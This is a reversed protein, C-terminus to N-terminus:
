DQACLSTAPSWRQMSATGADWTSSRAHRHHSTSPASTTLHGAVALAARHVHVGPHERGTPSPLTICPPSPRLTPMGLWRAASLHSLTAGTVALAAALDSQVLARAPDTSPVAYVGRRPRHLQGRSRAHRLASSTTGAARAQEVSFVGRQGEAEPPLHHMAGVRRALQTSCTTM